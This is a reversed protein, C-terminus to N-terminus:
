DYKIEWLIAHAQRKAEDYEEPTHIIQPNLANLLREIAAELEAIRAQLKEIKQAQYFGMM